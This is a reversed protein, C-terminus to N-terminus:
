DATIYEGARPRVGGTRAKVPTENTWRLVDDAVFRVM